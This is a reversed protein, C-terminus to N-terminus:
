PSKLPWFMIIRPVSTTATISQSNEPAYGKLSSTPASITVTMRISNVRDMAMLRVYYICFHPVFGGTFGGIRDFRMEGMNVIIEAIRQSVQYKENETFRGWCSTLREGDIYEQAIFADSTNASFAYVAPCM